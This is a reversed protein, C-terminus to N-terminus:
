FAHPHPAKPFGAPLFYAKLSHGSKKIIKDSAITHPGPFIYAKADALSPNSNWSQWKNPGQSFLKTEQNKFVITKSGVDKKQNLIWM